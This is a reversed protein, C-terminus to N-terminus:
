AVHLRRHAVLETCKQALHSVQEHLLQPDRRELREGQHVHGLREHRGWGVRADLARVPVRDLCGEGVEVCFQVLKEHDLGLPSYLVILQAVLDALLVSFPHHRDILGEELVERVHGEGFVVILVHAERRIADLADDELLEEPSDCHSSIKM